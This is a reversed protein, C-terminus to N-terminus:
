AFYNCVRFYIGNSRYFLESIERLRTLDKDALARLVENKNANTKNMQKIAGLDLVLDEIKKNGLKTSSFEIPKINM